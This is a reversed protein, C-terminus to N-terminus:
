EYLIQINRASDRETERESETDREREKRERGIHIYVYKHRYSVHRNPVCTGRHMALFSSSAKRVRDGRGASCSIAAQKDHGLHAIVASPLTSAHFCVICELLNLYVIGLSGIKLVTPGQM